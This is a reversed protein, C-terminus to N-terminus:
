GSVVAVLSHFLLYSYGSILYLGCLLLAFAALQGYNRAIQAFREPDASKDLMAEGGM